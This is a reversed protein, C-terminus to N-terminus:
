VLPLLLLLVLSVFPLFVREVVDDVLQIEVSGGLIFQEPLVPQDLRQGGADEVFGQLGLHVAMESIQLVIDCPVVAAVAAVAVRGLFDHGPVLLDLQADRPVPVALERRNQHGLM